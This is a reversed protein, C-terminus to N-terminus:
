LISGRLLRGCKPCIDVNYYSNGLYYGCHVCTGKFDASWQRNHKDFIQQRTNMSERMADVWAQSAERQIQAIRAESKIATAHMQRYVQEAQRLEAVIAQTRQFLKPHGLESLRIAATEYTSRIYNECRQVYDIISAIEGPTAMHGGVLARSIEATTKSNANELSALWENEAQMLSADTDAM